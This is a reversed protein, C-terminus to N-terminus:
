GRGGYIRGWMRKIEGARARSAATVPKKKQRPKKPETAYAEIWLRVSLEQDGRARAERSLRLLEQMGRKEAAM